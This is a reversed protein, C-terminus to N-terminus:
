INVNEFDKLVARHNKITFTRYAISFFHQTQLLFSIDIHLYPISFPRAKPSMKANVHM